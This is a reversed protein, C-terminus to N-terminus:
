MTEIGAAKFSELDPCTKDLPKYTVSTKTKAIANARISGMAETAKWPQQIAYYLPFTIFDYVFMVTQIVKIGVTVALGGEPGSAPAEKAEVNVETMTEVSELRDNHAESSGVLWFNSLRRHLRSFKVLINLVKREFHWHVATKDYFFSSLHIDETTQISHSLNTSFDTIAM